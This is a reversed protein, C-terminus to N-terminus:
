TADTGTGRNTTTQYDEPIGGAIISLASVAGALVSSLGAAAVAWGVTVPDAGSLVSGTIASTPITGALAQAATRVFGRMAALRTDAPIVNRAM